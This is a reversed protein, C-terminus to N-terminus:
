FIYITGQMSELCTRVSSKIHINSNCCSQEPRWVETSYIPQILYHPFRFPGSEKESKRKGWSRKCSLNVWRSLSCNIVCVPKHEAVKKEKVFELHKNHREDEKVRAKHNVQVDFDVLNKGYREM